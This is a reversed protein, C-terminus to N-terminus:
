VLIIPQDSSDRRSFEGVIQTQPPCIALAQKYSEKSVAILLGGNSQPDFLSMITNQTDQCKQNIYPKFRHYNKMLGSGPANVITCLNQTEPLLPVQKVLLNLGLAKDQCMELAHGILGFGTVDTLAHVGSIKGLEYGESNVHSLQDHLLDELHNSLLGLRLANSYIGVGLPKTLLLLDGPQAGINKKLNEKQVKGLVSFGYFPQQNEITHGGALTCFHQSLVNSAGTLINNLSEESIKSKPYGLIANAMFPKGGMAYIDSLAHAAASMGYIYPDDVIPTFFDTSMLLYNDSGDDYVCADDMNGYGVVISPNFYSTKSAKLITALSEQDQKCGCGGAKVLNTLTCYMNKM